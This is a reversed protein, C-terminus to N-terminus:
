PHVRKRDWRVIGLAILAVGLIVLIIGAGEAWNGWEMMRYWDGHGTEGFSFYYYRHWSYSYLLFGAAYVVLGLILSIFSAMFVKSKGRASGAIESGSGEM